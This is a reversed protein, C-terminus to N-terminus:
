WRSRCTGVGEEGVRREESRLQDAASFLEHIHVGRLDWGHSAAVERLESETESLTVYLVSEGCRVGELLFQLAMTTKGAGPLGEVLYLRNPTLGGELITDLGEIGTAVRHKDMPPRTRM